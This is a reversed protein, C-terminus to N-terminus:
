LELVQRNLLLEFLWFPFFPFNLIPSRRVRTWIIKDYFFFENNGVFTFSILFYPSASTSPYPPPSFPLISNTSIYLTDTSFVQAMKRRGRRGRNRLLFSKILKVQSLRRPGLFVCISSLVSLYPTSKKIRNWPFM